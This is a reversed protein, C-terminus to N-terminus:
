PSSSDNTPEGCPKLLPLIYVRKTVEASFLFYVETVQLVMVLFNMLSHEAFTECLM